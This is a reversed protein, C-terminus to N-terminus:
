LWDAQSDGSSAALYASRAQKQHWFVGLFAEFPGKKGPLAGEEASESKAHLLCEVPVHMFCVVQLKYFSVVCIAKMPM